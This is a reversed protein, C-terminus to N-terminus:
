PSSAFSEEVFDAEANVKPSVPSPMPLPADCNLKPTPRWFDASSEVVASKDFPAVDPLKNLGGSEFVFGANVTEGNPEAAEAKGVDKLLRRAAEESDGCSGFAEADGDSDVGGESFSGGVM